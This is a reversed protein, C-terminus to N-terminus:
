ICSLLTNNNADKVDHYTVTFRSELYWTFKGTLFTFGVKLTTFPLDELPAPLLCEANLASRFCLVVKCILFPLVATLKEKSLIRGALGINTGGTRTWM